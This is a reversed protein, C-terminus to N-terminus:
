FGITRDANITSEGSITPYVYFCDVAPRRAPVAREIHTAGRRPVITTTLPSTCPDPALGPRCLWVTTPASRAPPEHKTGGCGALAIGVLTLVTITSLRHASSM